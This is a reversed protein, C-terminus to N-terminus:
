KITYKEQTFEEPLNQYITSAKKLMLGAQKELETLDRNMAKKFCALHYWNETNKKECTWDEIHVYKEKKTNIKKHCLGCIM